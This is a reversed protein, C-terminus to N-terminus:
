GAGILEITGYTPGTGAPATELGDIQDTIPGPATLAVSDSEFPSATQTFAYVTQGSTALTSASEARVGLYRASQWATSPATHVAQSAAAALSDDAAHFAAAVSQNNTTIVNAAARASQQQGPLARIGSGSFFDSRGTATTLARIGGSYDFRFSQRLTEQAGARFGTTSNFAARGNRAVGAGGALTALGTFALDWGSITEGTRQNVSGTSMLHADVILKLGGIALFFGAGVGTFLALVSLATLMGGLFDSLGWFMRDWDGTVAGIVFESFGMVIDTFVGAVFGSVGGWVQSLFGPDSLDGLRIDDLDRGTRADIDEYEARLDDWETKSRRLEGAAADLSAQANSAGTRARDLELEIEIRHEDSGCVVTDFNDVLYQLNNQSSMAANLQTEATQCENWRTNARALAANVEERLAVLDTHHSRFIDSAERARTPVDDLKSSIDGVMSKFAEAAEGEFSADSDNVLTTFSSAVLDTSEALEAFFQSLDDFKEPTEEVPPGDVDLVQSWPLLPGDSM